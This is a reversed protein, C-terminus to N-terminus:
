DGSRTEEKVGYYTRLPKEGFLSRDASPLRVELRKNWYKSRLKHGRKTGHM